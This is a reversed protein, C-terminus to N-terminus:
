EPLYKMKQDTPYFEVRDHFSTDCLVMGQRFKKIIKEMGGWM